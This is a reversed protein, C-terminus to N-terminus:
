LYCLGTPTTAKTAKPRNKSKSADGSTAASTVKGVPPKAADSSSLTNTHHFPPSATQSTALVTSTTPILDSRQSSSSIRLTWTTSLNLTSSSSSLSMSSANAQTITVPASTVRPTKTGSTSQVNHSTANTLQSSYSFSTSTSSARPTSQSTTVYDTSQPMSPSTAATTSSRRTASATLVVVSVTAYLSSQKSGYENRAICQYIGSRPSSITHQVAHNANTVNQKLLLQANRFLQILMPFSGKAQCKVTTPLHNLICPVVLNTTNCVQETRTDNLQSLSLTVRPLSYVTVSWPVKRTQVGLSSFTATITCEYQGSDQETVNQIHLVGDILLSFGMGVVIVSGDRKWTYSSNIHSYM